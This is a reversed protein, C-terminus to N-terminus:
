MNTIKLETEKWLTSGTTVQAEIIYELIRKKLTKDFSCFYCIMDLLDRHSIEPCISADTDGVWTNGQKNMMSGIYVIFNCLKIFFDDFKLAVHVLDVKDNLKFITLWFTKSLVSRDVMKNLIQNLILKQVSDEDATQPKFTLLRFLVSLSSEVKCISLLEEVVTHLEKEKGRRLQNALQNMLLCSEIKNSNIHNKQHKIIYDLIYNISASTLMYETLVKEFREKPHLATYMRCATDVTHSNLSVNKLFVGLLHDCAVSYFEESYSARKHLNNFITLVSFFEHLCDQTKFKEVTKEVFYAIKFYLKIDEKSIARRTEENECLKHFHEFTKLIQKINDESTDM